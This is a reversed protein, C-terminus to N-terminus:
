EIISELQAQIKDLETKADGGENWFTGLNDDFTAMMENWEPIFPARFIFESSEGFAGMDLGEPAWEPNLFADSQQVELNAPVDQAKDIIVTQAEVDTLFDIAEFAQEPNESDRTVALGSGFASVAQQEGSWMPAIGWNIDSEILGGIAWFGTTNMAVTGAAFAPDGGMDPGMDAYEAATPVVHHVHTLDNAWQLAAVVEPSNVAPRGSDDIIQGGNQYAFSWWQAWWGAGGYGWQEGPITLQEMAAQADEQTWEATPYELGAADFLDKNYYVIMAGSRDPIAYTQDEYTYLDGVPGFRQEMDLGSSEIYEDLPVLQSKSSYSNVNEAVQMIDPGDGGAIMTQVKQEYQDSPILQLDITIDPNEAELLDIRAQYTEKDLDGGWVVMKLAGDDGSDGGGCAALAAAGLLATAALGAGRRWQVKHMM